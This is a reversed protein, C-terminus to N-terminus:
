ERQLGQDQNSKAVPYCGISNSM